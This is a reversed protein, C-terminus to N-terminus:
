LEGEGVPEVSMAAEPASSADDLSPPEAITNIQEMIARRLHELRDEFGADVRGFCTEVVVDLPGFDPALEIQVGEFAELPQGSARLREALEPSIRCVVRDAETLAGSAQRILPTVWATDQMLADAALRQGVELALAVADTEAASLIRARAQALEQLQASLAQSAEQLAQLQAEVEQQAAQIAENYGAEYGDAQGQEFAAEYVEEPSPAAPEPEPEPEPEVLPAQQGPWWSRVSQAEEQNPQGEWGPKLVAPEAEPEPPRATAFSVDQIKVRALQRRTYVAHRSRSM